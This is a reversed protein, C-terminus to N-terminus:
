RISVTIRPEAWRVLQHFVVGRGKLLGVLGPLTVPAGARLGTSDPSDISVSLSGEASMRLTSTYLSSPKRQTL